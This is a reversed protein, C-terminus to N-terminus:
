DIEPRHKCMRDYVHLSKCLRYLMKHYEREVFLTIVSISKVHATKVVIGSLSTKM